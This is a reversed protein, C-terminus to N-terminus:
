KKAIAPLAEGKAWRKIWNKITIDKVEGNALKALKDIKVIGNNWAQWIKGKNSPKNGKRDSKGKNSPKNGERDSKEKVEDKVVEEVVTGDLCLRMKKRLKPVNKEEDLNKKLSKFEKHKKVMKKLDNLAAKNVKDLLSPEEDEEVDDEEVDGDEEEEVEVGDKEKIEDEDEDEDEDLEPKLLNLIEQTTKSLGEIEEMDVRDEDPVDEGVNDWILTIEKLLKEKSQKLNIEFGISENIEKAAKKAANIKIEEIKM